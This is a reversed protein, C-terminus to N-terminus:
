QLGVVSLRLRMSGCIDLERPVRKGSGRLGDRYRDSIGISVTTIVRRRSRSTGNIEQVEPHDLSCAM